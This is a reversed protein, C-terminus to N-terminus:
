HCVVLAVAEDLILPGAVLHNVTDDAAVVSARRCVATHGHQAPASQYVPVPNFIVIACANKGIIRKGCRMQIGGVVPPAIGAPRGSRTGPGAVADALM